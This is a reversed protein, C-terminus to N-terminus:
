SASFDWDNNRRQCSQTGAVIEQRGCRTGKRIKNGSTYIQTEVQAALCLLKATKVCPQRPIGIGHQWTPVGVVPGSTPAM